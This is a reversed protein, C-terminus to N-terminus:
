QITYAATAVASRTYGPALAIAKLTETAGVSISGGYVASSATPTLGNTTYHIVAGTTEDSISVTQTGVYTGAALSFVPTKAAGGVHYTVDKTTTNGANDVATVSFTQKGATSTNVPTGNAVTGVCSAVGSTEDSCTYSAIVPPGLPYSANSTPESVTVAPKVTDVKITVSDSASGLPNTASCAYKKGKTNPVTGAACGSTTPASIGSVNWAITTPSVYWGNAGLTGTVWPTVIPAFGTVNTVTLTAPVLDAAVQTTTQGAVSGSYIFVGGGVQDSTTVTYSSFPQSLSFPLNASYVFASLSSSDNFASAASAYQGGPIRSAISTGYGGDIAVSKGNITIISNVVPTTAVGDVSGGLIGLTNLGNDPEGNALDLEFTATFAYGALNTGPAGTFLGTYDEGTSITGTYTYEVLQAGPNNYTLNDVALEYSQAAFPGDTGGSATITVATVNGWNFTALYPTGANGLNFYQSGVVTSGNMGVASIALGNRWAGTLYASNLVFPGGGTLAITLTDPGADSATSLVKTGSIAAGQYGSTYPYTASDVAQCSGGECTLNLGEYSAPIVGEGFPLSTPVNDFTLTTQAGAIGHIALAAVGAAVSACPRRRIGSLKGM